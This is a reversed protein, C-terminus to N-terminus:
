RQRRRWAGPSVGLHRKVARSFHSQDSFGHSQAIEVLSADTALLDAIARQVRLSRAYEGPSSGFYRRFVRALYVPHVGAEAALDAIRLSSDLCRDHLLERVRELWPPPLREIVSLSRSAVGLLELGLGQLTLTSLDDGVSLERHIRRAVGISERDKLQRIGDFVCPLGRLRDLYTEDFELVLNHAGVRGLRDRHRAGPPRFHVAPAVCHISRTRPYDEEFSGDLLITVTAREHAHSPITSEARHWSETLRLGETRSERLLERRLVPVPAYSSWSM